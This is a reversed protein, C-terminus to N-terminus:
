AGPSHGEAALPDQPSAAHQERPKGIRASALFIAIALLLAGAAGVSFATMRALEAGYALTSDGTARVYEDSARWILPQRLTLIAAGLLGVIRAPLVRWVLALMACGMIGVQLAGWAGEHDHSQDVFRRAFSVVLGFSVLGLALMVPRRQESPLKRALALVLLLVMGAIGLFDFVREGPLVPVFTSRWISGGSAARAADLTLYSERAWLADSAAFALMGIGISARALQVLVRRSTLQPRM